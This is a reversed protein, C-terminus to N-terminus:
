PGACAITNLYRGNASILPSSASETLLGRVVGFADFQDMYGARIALLQNGFEVEGVVQPAPLAQQHRWGDPVALGGISSM